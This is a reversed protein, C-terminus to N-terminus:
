TDVGAEQLETERKKTNEDSEADVKKSTETASTEVTAVKEKSADDVSPFAKERTKLKELETNVTLIKEEVRKLQQQERYRLNLYEKLKPQNAEGEEKEKMVKDNQLLAKMSNRYMEADVILSFNSMYEIQNELFVPYTSVETTNNDVIRIIPADNEGCVAHFIININGNCQNKPEEPRVREYVELNCQLARALPILMLLPHGWVAPMVQHYSSEGDQVKVKVPVSLQEFYEEATMSSDRICM